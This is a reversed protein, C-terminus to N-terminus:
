FFAKIGTAATGTALVYAVELPLVQGAALTFSVAQGATPLGGSKEASAAVVQTIVSITGAVDAWVGRVNYLRHGLSITDSPTVALADNFTADVTTASTATQRGM